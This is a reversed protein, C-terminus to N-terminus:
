YAFVSIIIPVVQIDATKTNLVFSATYVICQIFFYYKQTYYYTILRCIFAITYLFVHYPPLYM